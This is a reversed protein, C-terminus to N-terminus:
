SSLSISNTDAQEYPPISQSTMSFLIGCPYLLSSRKALHNCDYTDCSFDFYQVGSSSILSVSDTAINSSRPFPSFTSQDLTASAFTVGPCVMLALLSPISSEFWFQCAIKM